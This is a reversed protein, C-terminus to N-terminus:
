VGSYLYRLSGFMGIFNVGTAFQASTLNWVMELTATPEHLSAGWLVKSERERTDCIEKLCPSLSLAEPRINPQSEV